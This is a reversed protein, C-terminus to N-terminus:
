SIFTAILGNSNDSKKSFIADLSAGGFAELAEIQALELRTMRHKTVPTVATATIAVPAATVSQSEVREPTNENEETSNEHSGLQVTDM